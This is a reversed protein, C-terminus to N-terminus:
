CTSEGQALSACQTCPADLFVGHDCRGVRREGRRTILLLIVHLPLLYLDLRRRWSFVPGASWSRWDWYFEVHPRRRWLWYWLRGPWSRESDLKVQLAIGAESSGLLVDGAVRRMAKLLQIGYGRRRCESTIYLSVIPPYAIGWGVLRGNSWIFGAWSNPFGDPEELAMLMDNAISALHGGYQRQERPPPPCMARVKDRLSGAFAEQLPLVDIVVSM